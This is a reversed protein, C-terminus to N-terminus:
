NSTKLELSFEISELSSEDRQLLYERKPELLVNFHLGRDLPRSMRIQENDTERFGDRRAERQAAHSPLLPAPRHEVSWDSATARADSSEAIAAADPTSTSPSQTCGVVLLVLVGLSATLKM